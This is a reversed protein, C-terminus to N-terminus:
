KLELGVSATSDFSKINVEARAEESQGAVRGPRARVSVQVWILLGWQKGVKHVLNNQIKCPREGAFM